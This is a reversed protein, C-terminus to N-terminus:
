QKEKQFVPTLDFSEIDTIELDDKKGAELNVNAFFRIKNDPGRKATQLVQKSVATVPLLTSQTKHWSPITIEFYNCGSRNIM